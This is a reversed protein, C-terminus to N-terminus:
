WPAYFDLLIQREHNVAAALADEIKTFHPAVPKEVPEQAKLAVTLLLVVLLVSLIIKVKM